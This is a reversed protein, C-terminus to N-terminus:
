GNTVKQTKIGERIMLRVQPKPLLEQVKQRYWRISLDRGHAEERLEDFIGIQSAM